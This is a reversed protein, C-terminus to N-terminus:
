RSRSARRPGVGTIITLIRRQAATRSHAIRVLTTQEGDTFPRVCSAVSADGQSRSFNYGLSPLHVVYPSNLFLGDDVEDALPVAATILQGRDIWFIGM